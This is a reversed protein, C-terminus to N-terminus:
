ARRVLSEIEALIAATGDATPAEAYLRLLPETGSGRILVWASPELLFKIGDLNQVGAVPFGAIARPTESLAVLAREKQGPPLHLDIRGYVQPGYRAHLDAVLEGLTKGNRAMAEALVLSNLIGDREPLHGKLGIGGSEEGGILIDREMMLDCIYKFGIPTEHLKLGHRQAIRDIMKSTSFTKAVEGTQGRQILDELLIAFIRHSDVFDGHRDIAGVRDADGDLAFGADCGHDVVARRLDAVHPEIPEPNLGSFLPDRAAHIELHRIGHEAFLAPLYGRGAGYMPDVALRFGAEAIAKLNVFRAVCGLYPARFDTAVIEGGPREPAASHLLAEIKHVIVPSASGGYYAKFKVGNWEWPNHSATIMVAGATHFHRVAYSVAPTPACDDALLVRLGTRALEEAAARAFSESAFRTDYGVAVGREPEEHAWVYAAIARSVTRVNEFTFDDAIVGRWGDTGFKIPAVATGRAEAEGAM